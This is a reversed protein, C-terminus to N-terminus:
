LMSSLNNPHNNFNFYIYYKGEKKFRYKEEQIRKKQEEESLISISHIKSQIYNKKEHIKINKNLDENKYWIYM